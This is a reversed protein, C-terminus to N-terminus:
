KRFKWDATGFTSKINSRNVGSFNVIQFGVWNSAAYASLSKVNTNLVPIAMMSRRLIVTINVMMEPRALRVHM